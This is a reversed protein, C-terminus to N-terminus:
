TFLSAVVTNRNRVCINPYYSQLKIAKKRRFINFYSILLEKNPLHFIKKKLYIEVRMFYMITVLKTHRICDGFFGVSEM